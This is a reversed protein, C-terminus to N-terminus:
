MMSDFANEIHNIKEARGNSGIFVEIVDFRPQLNFDNEELFCAATKVIKEQKKCDVWEKPEAISKFSRSKVETFVLYNENKSIIDIEGYRSHYNRKLTEYGRNLLFREASDEGTKGNKSATSKM